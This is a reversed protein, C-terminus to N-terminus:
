AIAIVPHAAPNLWRMIRLLGAKPISVCGATGHGTDIHLFIGAGRYRVAPWRNFNIVVAQLYAQTHTILHESGNVTNESLKMNFGGQESTRHQNYYASHNDEVWWDDAHVRFYSLKTGPNGGIGFAQTLTYTGTPTKDDGQVRKTGAIVGRAGVHGYYGMVQVWGGSVRQWAKVVARDGSFHQVTIVQTAHGIKVPVPLHTYVRHTSTSLSISPVAKAAATAPVSASATSLSFAGPVLLLSLTLPLALVLRGISRGM